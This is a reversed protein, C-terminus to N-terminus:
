AAIRLSATMKEMSFLLTQDPYGTAGQPLLWFETLGDAMLEASTFEGSLFVTINIM